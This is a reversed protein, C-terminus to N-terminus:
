PVIAEGERDRTSGPRDSREVRPEYRYLVDLALDNVDGDDLRSGTRGTFAKEYTKRLSGDGYREPFNSGAFTISTTYALGAAGVLTFALLYATIAVRAWTHRNVSGFFCAVWAMLLPLIPLWYRSTQGTYVFLVLVYGFLFIESESWRGRRLVVGSVLFAFAVVGAIQFLWRLDGPFRSMPINLFLEGWERLRGSLMFMINNFLGHDRYIYYVQDLYSTRSLLTFGIAGLIIIGVLGAVISRARARARGRAQDGDSNDHDYSKWLSWALAPILAIGITRFAISAVVLVAAAVYFFWRSPAPTHRARFSLWLGVLTIGFFSIEAMPLTAHKIFIFSLLTLCCILAASRRSLEFDKVILQYTAALGAALFLCNIANFAWSTGLGIRDLAAILYSYGPPLIWNEYPPETGELFAVARALYAIADTNLRLPSYIQLLYVVAIGALLTHVPLLKTPSDHIKM